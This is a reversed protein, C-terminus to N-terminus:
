GGGDPAKIVRGGCLHVRLPWHLRERQEPRPGVLLAVLRASVCLM